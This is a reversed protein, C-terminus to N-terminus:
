MFLKQSFILLKNRPLSIVFTYHAQQLKKEFSIDILKSTNRELMFCPIILYTFQLKITVFFFIDNSSPSGLIMSFTNFGHSTLMPLRWPVISLKMVLAPYQLRNRPHGHLAIQALSYVFRPPAGELLSAVQRIQMVFPMLPPHAKHYIVFVM